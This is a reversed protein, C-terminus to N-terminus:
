NHKIQKQTLIQRAHLISELCGHFHHSIKFIHWVGTDSNKESASIDSNVRQENNTDIAHILTNADDYRDQKLAEFFQQIINQITQLHTVSHPNHYVLIKNMTHMSDKCMKIAQICEQIITIYQIGTNKDSFSFSVIYAFLTDYYWRLQYYDEPNHNQPDQYWKQILNQSQTYFHEIDRHLVTMSTHYDTKQTLNSIGLQQWHKDPILYVILKTFYNLVPIHIVWGVLKFILFFVILGNVSTKTLGWIWPEWSGFGRVQTILTTIRSFWLIFVIGTFVNFLLHSLAVQKKVASWKLSVLMATSTTGIYAWILSAAAIDFSILWQHLATMVIITMASSSQIMITWVFGILIYRMRHRHVYNSLDISTKVFAISDKLYELGFFVLWIYMVCLFVNKYKGAFLSGLWGLAIMPIVLPDMDFGLGFLWILAEMFVSGINMGVVIGIATHLVIVGSGVLALLLLSVASSSQLINVLWVGTLISKLRTNTIRTVRGQISATNYRAIDEIRDLAYLFLAIGLLFERLHTSTVWSFWSTMIYLTVFFLLAVVIQIVIIM